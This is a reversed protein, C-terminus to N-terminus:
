ILNRNKFKYYYTVKLSGLVDYNDLSSGEINIITVPQLDYYKDM